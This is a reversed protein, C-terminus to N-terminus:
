ALDKALAEVVAAARLVATVEDPPLLRLREALAAVRRARGEVLVQVGKPTPRVWVVRRDVEDTERVVLGETELGAVLRSM